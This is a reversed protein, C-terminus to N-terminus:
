MYIYIYVAHSVLKNVDIYLCSILYFCKVCNSKRQHSRNCRCSFQAAPIQIHLRDIEIHYAKPATSFSGLDTAILGVAYHNNVM